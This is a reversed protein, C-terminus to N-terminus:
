RKNKFSKYGLINNNNSTKRNEGRIKLEEYKM